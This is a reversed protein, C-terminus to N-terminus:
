LRARESGTETGRVSWVTAVVAPSVCWTNTGSVGSSGASRSVAGSREGDATPRPARRGRRTRRGAMARGRGRRRGTTPRGARGGLRRPVPSARRRDASGRSPRTVLPPRVPGTTGSRRRTTPETGTTPTSRRDESRRSTRRGFSDAAPTGGRGLGTALPGLVNPAREQRCPVVQDVHGVPFSSPTSVRLAVV